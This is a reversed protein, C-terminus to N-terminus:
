SVETVEDNVPEICVLRIGREDYWKALYDEIYGVYCIFIEKNVPTGDCKWILTCYYLGQTM